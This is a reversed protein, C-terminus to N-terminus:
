RISLRCLHTLKPVDVNLQYLVVNKSETSAVALWKGGQLAVCSHRIDEDKLDVVIEPSADLVIGDSV